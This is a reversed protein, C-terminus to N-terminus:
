RSRLSKSLPGGPKGSPRCHRVHRFRADVRPGGTRAPPGLTPAPRECTARRVVTMHRDVRGSSERIYPQPPSPGKPSGNTCFGVHPVVADPEQSPHKADFRVNPFPHQVTPHPLFFDVLPRIRECNQPGQLRRRRSAQLWHRTVGSRFSELEAHEGPVTHYAFYRRVVRGLWLGQRGLPANRHRRL